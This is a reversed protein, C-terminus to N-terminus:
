ALSQQVFLGAAIEAEDETLKNEKDELISKKVEAKLDDAAKSIEMSEVGIIEMLGKIVDRIKSENSTSIKRGAKELVAKDEKELGYFVKLAKALLDNGNVLPSEAKAPAAMGQLMAKLMDAAHAVQDPTPSNSLLDIVAQVVAADKEIKEKQVSSKEIGVLAKLSEILAEVEDKKFDASSSKSLIEKIKEVASRNDDEKELFLDDDKKGKMETEKAPEIEESTIDNDDLWQQAEAVTWDENSFRLSQPVVSGDTKLAGWIIAINEPVNIDNYLNGGNTRRFTDPSIEAPAVLRAAHENPFPKSIDARKYIAFDRRNAGRDVFAVADIKLDSLKRRKPKDKHTM